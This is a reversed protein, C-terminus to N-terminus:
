SLANLRGFAARRDAPRLARLLEPVRELNFNHGYRAGLATLEDPDQQWRRSCCPTRTPSPEPSLDSAKRPPEPDKLSRISCASFGVLNCPFRAVLAKGLDCRLPAFGGHYPPPGRNSDPLPSLYRCIPWKQTNGLGEEDLLPERISGTLSPWVRSFERYVAAEVSEVPVETFLLPKSSLAAVPITLVRQFLAFDSDGAAARRGNPVPKPSSALGCARNRGSSCPTRSCGSRRSRGTKRGNKIYVRALSEWALAAKGLIVQL